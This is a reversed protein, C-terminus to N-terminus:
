IAHQCGCCKRADPANVSGCYACTKDTTPKKADVAIWAGPGLVLRDSSATTTSTFGVVQCTSECSGVYEYPEVYGKQKRGFIAM